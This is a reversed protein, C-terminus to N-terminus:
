VSWKSQLSKVIRHSELGFHGFVRIQGTDLLGESPRMGLFKPFGHVFFNSAKFLHSSPFDYIAARKGLSDCDHGARPSLPDLPKRIASEVLELALPTNSTIQFPVAESAIGVGRQNAPGCHPGAKKQGCRMSPSGPLHIEAIGETLARLLSIDKNFQRLVVSRLSTVITVNHELELFAQITLQVAGLQEVLM